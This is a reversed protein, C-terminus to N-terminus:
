GPKRVLRLSRLGTEEASERMAAAEPTEGPM